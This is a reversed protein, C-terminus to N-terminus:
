KQTLQKVGRRALQSDPHRRILQRLVRRADASAGSASLADFRAYLEGANMTELDIDFRLQALRLEADRLQLALAKLSSQRQDSEARLSERERQRDRMLGPQLIEPHKAAITRWGERIFFAQDAGIGALVPALTEKCSAYDGLKPCLITPPLNQPGFKELDYHQYSIDVYGTARNERCFPSVRLCDFAGIQFHHTATGIALSSFFRFQRPPWNDPLAPDGPPTRGFDNGLLEAIGADSLGYWKPQFYVSREGDSFYVTFHEPDGDVARTSYGVQRGQDRQGVLITVISTSNTHEGATFTYTTRVNLRGKGSAKGDTCAGQWSLERAVRTGEGFVPPPEIFVSCGEKTTELQLKTAPQAPCRAALVLAALALFSLIKPHM